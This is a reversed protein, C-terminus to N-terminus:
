RLYPFYRHRYLLKSTRVGIMQAPAGGVIAMPEVDKTVISGAAVVAGRGVRVGPLIIARSAVWAYDEILVDGSRSAYTDSNPDHEMTFICTERAIDVCDGILIKGGRGDLICRSNVISNNGIQIQSRTFSSDLFEVNTLVNSENGITIYLRMLPVRVVAFPIRAILKNLIFLRLAKLFAAFEKIPGGGTLLERGPMLGSRAWLALFNGSSSVEPMDLM